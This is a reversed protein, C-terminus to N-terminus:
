PETRETQPKPQTPISKFSEMRTMNNVLRHPLHPLAEKDLNKAEIIHVVYLHLSLAAAMMNASVLQRNREQAEGTCTTPDGTRDILLEPSTIRPDLDTDRWEPKYIFAESSLTENAAIIATCGEMDCARLAAIRGPNNDVCVMLVDTRAHEVAGFSYFRPIANCRYRSALAEAKNRGVDGKGFLQRNMNKPELKDGDMVTVEGPGILMCLTPTLLSGVGGAGIIFVKM